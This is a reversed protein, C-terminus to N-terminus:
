VWLEPVYFSLGVSLSGWARHLTLRVRYVDYEDPTGSSLWVGAVPIAADDAVAGPAERPPCSVQPRGAIPIPIRCGACALRIARDSSGDSILHAGLVNWVVVPPLM